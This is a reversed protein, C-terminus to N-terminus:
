ESNKNEGKNLQLLPFTNPATNPVPLRKLSLKSPKFGFFWCRADCLSRLNVRREAALKFRKELREVPNAAVVYRHDGWSSNSGGKGPRMGM